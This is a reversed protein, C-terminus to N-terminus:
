HGLDEKEAQDSPEQQERRLERRAKKRSKSSNLDELPKLRQKKEERCVGRGQTESHTHSRQEEKAEEFV